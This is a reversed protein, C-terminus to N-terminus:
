KARVQIFLLCLKPYGDATRTKDETVSKIASLDTSIIVISAMDKWLLRHSTCILSGNSFNTEKDSGTECLNVGHAERLFQESGYLAVSPVQNFLEM